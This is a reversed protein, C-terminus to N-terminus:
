IKWHVWPDAKQTQEIYFELLDLLVTRMVDAGKVEDVVERVTSASWWQLRNNKVHAAVDFGALETCRASRAYLMTWNQILVNPPWQEVFLRPVIETDRAGAWSVTAALLAPLQTWMDHNTYTLKALHLDVAAM